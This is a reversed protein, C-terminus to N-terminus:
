QIIYRGPAPAILTTWGQGDSQVDAGAPGRVTLFRSWRVRLALAGARPTTITLAAQGAVVIRAPPAVIPTAALVRYLRWRSDSWVTHLYQLHGSRVLTDEPSHALTMHDIAVYGVANNDLWLKYTTANLNKSALVANYANDSQTEFGRALAAHGLLAYDSVRTGDPVVEVRYNALGPTRDLQAILSDYYALNSMPQSAVSLELISGVISTVLGASVSFAALFKPAEATALVAVPLIIWVFRELNTGMGNPILVVFPYVVLTILLVTRIYAPPRALLMLALTIVTWIASSLPFGQPGPSGFYLAVGLLAAGSAGATALAARRRSPEHVIVGTVGLALFVGSLPSTLATAAGLLVALVRRDAKVCLLAVLMLASGMAFPVRGAWLSFASAVAAVWTGLVQHRAGRLLVHCLPPIAVTAVAGLVGADVFRSLWTAVVSYHGPITGGFWAFWYHLGVGHEAASRRAQAAWFDGVPPRTVLFAAAAALTFLPAAEALRRNALPQPLQVARIEPL